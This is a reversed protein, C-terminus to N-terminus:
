ANSGGGQQMKLAALRVAEFQREIEQRENQQVIEQLSRYFLLRRIMTVADTSKLSLRNKATSGRSLETIM